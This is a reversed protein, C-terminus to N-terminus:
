GKPGVRYVSGDGPHMEVVMGIPELVFPPKEDEFFRDFDRVFGQEIGVLGKKDEIVQRLTYGDQTVYHHTLILLTNDIVKTAHLFQNGLRTELRYTFNKGWIWPTKGVISAKEIAYTRVEPHEQLFEYFASSRSFIDKSVDFRDVEDPECVFSDLVQDIHYIVKIEAGRYLAERYAEIVGVMEDIEHDYGLLRIQKAGQLHEILKNAVLVAPTQRAKFLPLCSSDLHHDNFFIKRVLDAELLDDRVDNM